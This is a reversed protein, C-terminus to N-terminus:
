SDEEGSGPDKVGSATPWFAPSTDAATDRGAGCVCDTRTSAAIVIGVSFGHTSPTGNYARPIASTGHFPQM